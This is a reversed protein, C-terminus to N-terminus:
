GPAPTVIESENEKCDKIRFTIHNKSSLVIPLYNIRALSTSTLIGYRM